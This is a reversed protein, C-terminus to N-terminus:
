RNMRSKNVTRTYLERYGESSRKWSFDQEMGRRVLMRWAEDDRYHNMARRCASEFAEPRYAEFVFGNGNRKGADAHIDIVTDALGGTRRVVPVTGYRLAIMQGLGCPEYRSPMLFLDAGGYIQPALEAQFGESFSLKGPFRVALEQLDRIYERRGAGLIAMQAGAELVSPAVELILDLGKQPDLRGVIGMLPAAPSVELGLKEQLRRKNTIKGGLDHPSYSAWLTEDQAPNWLNTDIGNLIGVIDDARKGLVGELGAGKDKSRIEEAYSPSVTSLMESYILGGKLFNVKDWFELGEAHFVEWPLGIRPLVEADFVGQYALNHISFLVAARGAAPDERYFLERFVPVLATPWDNIHIVQPRLDLEKVVELVARSFFAFRLANDPYEGDPSGYIGERDFFETSSILYVAMGEVEHKWVKGERSRGDIWVHVKAGTDEVPYRRRDISGYFPMITSVNEGLRHLALPLSGAVDALGGVKALPEVEPSVYIINM